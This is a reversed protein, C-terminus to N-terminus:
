APELVASQTLQQRLSKNERRLTENEETLSQIAQSTIVIRALIADVQQKLTDVHSTDVGLGLAAAEARDQEAYWFGLEGQEEPTLAEGLSQRLHLNWLANDSTTM